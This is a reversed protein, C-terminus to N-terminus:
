VVRVRIAQVITHVEGGGYEYSPISVRCRRGRMLRRKEVEVVKKEDDQEHYACARIDARQKGADDVPVLFPIDIGARWSLQGIKTGPLFFYCASVTYQM